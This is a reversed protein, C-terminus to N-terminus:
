VLPPVLIIIFLNNQAERRKATRNIKVLNAKLRGGAAPFLIGADMLVGFVILGADTRGLL